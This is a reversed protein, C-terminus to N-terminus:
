FTFIQQFHSFEEFIQFNRSFRFIERFVSFKALIQFNRLFRFIERFDSVKKSSDLIEQFFNKKFMEKSNSFKQLYRSFGVSSESPQINNEPDAM